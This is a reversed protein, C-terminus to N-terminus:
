EGERNSPIKSPAKSREPAQMQEAVARDKASDSNALGQVVGAYDAAAKNQSLKFKGVMSEVHVELGVVANVMRKTFNPPADAVSWPERQQAEHMDTLSNLFQLIWADAYKFNVRGTVQVVSYNWTPVVRGDTKKAPYYNPSVYADPGHFILLVEQGDKCRKWLPNAKAIHGQLLLQGDERTHLYFPLHEANLSNDMTTVLTGFPFAQIFGQLKQQDTEKFAPPTYM